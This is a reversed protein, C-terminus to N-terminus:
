MTGFACCFGRPAQHMEDVGKVVFASLDKVYVGSDPNDKLELREKPNKSLLDRIEENYIELFSVRVLFQRQLDSNIM